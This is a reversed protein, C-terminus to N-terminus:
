DRWRSLTPKSEDCLDQNNALVSLRNHMEDPNSPLIYCDNGGIEDGYCTIFYQAAYNPLGGSYPIVGQALVLGVGRALIFNLHM